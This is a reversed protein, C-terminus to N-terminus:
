TADDADEAASVTLSAAISQATETPLGSIRVTGASSATTVTVTSLGFARELPGAVTDIVQVRSVPILVRTRTLWGAQSYVAVPNIEWRHFAYRFRPMVILHAAAGVALVLFALVAVFWPVAPIVALVVTVVPIVVGWRIAARVTWWTKARPSVQHAPPRLVEATGTAGSAGPDVPIGPVAM